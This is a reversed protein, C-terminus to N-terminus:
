NLSSPDNPALPDVASAADDAPEDEDPTEEGKESRRVIEWVQEEFHEQDVQQKEREKALLVALMRALREPDKEGIKAMQKIEAVSRDLRTLSKPKEKSATGEGKKQASDGRKKGKGKKKGGGFLRGLLSETNKKKRPM